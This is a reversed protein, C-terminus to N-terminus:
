KTLGDLDDISTANNEERYKVLGEVGKNECWKDLTEREGQYDLFPISYGCSDAVRSVQILIFCRTGVHKPFTSAVDDFREHDRDVVEGKGHLRLIKPGGEFACFMIVIRGNEQLHAVTEAGSGTYDQYAVSLPSTGVFFVHQKSIWDNLQVSIDPFIKAM